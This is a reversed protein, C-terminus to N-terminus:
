LGFQAYAAREEVAHNLDLLAKAGIRNLISRRRSFGRLRVKDGFREKLTPVIHGVADALGVDVGKRGVWIEGTFLRDDDALKAARRTKVHDIFTGHIDELLVKLREVDESKEPKFPDRMSKSTGATHVRREVGLKGIAETFGFGASIVGISGIVSCDDVFIEDAAAALWYGGSAAVDEVFAYVPREKEEALRRIRAGILASQVPSGGPSNIILAVAESKVAFAKELIPAMGSDNLGRGSAILGDLRVVSVVPDNKMFPIFRKM